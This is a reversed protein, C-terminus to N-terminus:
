HAGSTANQPANRRHNASDGCDTAGRYVHQTERAGGGWITLQKEGERECQQRAYMNDTNNYNGRGRQARPTTRACINNIIGNRKKFRCSLCCVARVLMDKCHIVETRKGARERTNIRAYMNDTNDNYNGREEASTANHSRM